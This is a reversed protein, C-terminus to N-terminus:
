RQASEGPEMAFGLWAMRTTANAAESSKKAASEQEAFFGAKPM